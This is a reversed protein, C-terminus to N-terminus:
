GHRGGAAGAWTPRWPYGGVAFQTGPLRREGEGVEGGPWDEYASDIRIPSGVYRTRGRSPRPAADPADTLSGSQDFSLLRAYLDLRAQARV